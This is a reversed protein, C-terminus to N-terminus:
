FSFPPSCEGAGINAPSESLELSTAFLRMVATETETVADGGGTGLVGGGRTCVVAAALDGGAENKGDGSPKSADEKYPPSIGAICIQAHTHEQRRSSIEFTSM